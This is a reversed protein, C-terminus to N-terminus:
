AHTVFSRTLHDRGLIDAIELSVGLYRALPDRSLLSYFDARVEDMNIPFHLFQQVKELKPIRPLEPKTVVQRVM